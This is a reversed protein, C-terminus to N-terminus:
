IATIILLVLLNIYPFVIGFYILLIYAVVNLLLYISKSKTRAIVLVSLVIAASSGFILVFNILQYAIGHSFIILGVVNQSLIFGYIYALDTRLYILSSLIFVLMFINWKLLHYKTIYREM